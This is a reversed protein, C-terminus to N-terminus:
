ESKFITPLPEKSSHLPPMSSVSWESREKVPQQEWFWHRIVNWIDQAILMDDTKAMRSPLNEFAVNRILSELTDKFVNRRAIFSDFLRKHNPNETDYIDVNMACIDDAFDWAQGLRLREYEELATWILRLQKETLYLCIM